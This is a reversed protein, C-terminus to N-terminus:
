RNRQRKITDLLESFAKLSGASSDIRWDKEKNIGFWYIQEVRSYKQPISGLSRIWRPKLASEAAATEAIIIPKKSLRALSEYQKNFINDFSKEPNGANYGNIGIYDVYRDGPFYRSPQNKPINPISENNVSWIFKVNDAGTAKFIRHIHRWAPIYDTPNNNIEVGAHTGRYTGGWTDWNGNMESMPRLYVPYDFDRFFSAWKKIDEDQEGRSIAKLSFNCNPECPDFHSMQHYHPEFAVQIIKGSKKAQKIESTVWSWGPDESSAVYWLFGDLKKGMQSELAELDSYRQTFVGVKVPLRSSPTSASAFIFVLLPLTLLLSIVVLYRRKLLKM